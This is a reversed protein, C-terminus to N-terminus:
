DVAKEKGKWSSRVPPDQEDGHIEWDISPTRDIAADEPIGKIELDATSSSDDQERNKAGEGPLDAELSSSAISKQDSTDNDGRVEGSEVRKADSWYELDNVHEKAAEFAKLLSDTKRKEDETEITGDNGSEQPRKTRTDLVDQMTIVLQKRSTQYLFIGMIEHMHDPLYYLDDGGHNLFNTIAEAKKRDVTAKKLAKMLTLINSIEENEDESDSEAHNSSIYSSRNGASREASSARSNARAPHITFYDANLMHAGGKSDAGGRLHAKVRKRLWRRRRVFSHFWPHNGHWSFGQRFSFSYEWGEEDVDHSMDVYWCKWAWAWTPDPVQANTIDVPSDKFAATQWASPDFNLLSRSSYLPIGCFFSGRQNEYLIDVEYDQQKKVKIPKKSRFPIRDRFRGERISGKKGRGNKVTNKDDDHVEGTGLNDLGGAQDDREQYKAYKRRALEERLTGKTWRRSLTGDSNRRASTQLASEPDLSSSIPEGPPKTTDVLDIAHDYQDATIGYARTPVVIGKSSM